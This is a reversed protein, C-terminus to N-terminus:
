RKTEAYLRVRDYIANGVTGPVCDQWVGQQTTGKLLYGKSDYRYYAKIAYQKKELNLWVRQVVRTAGDSQVDRYGEHVWTEVCRMDPNDTPTVYGTRETDFWFQASSNGACIIWNAAFVPSVSVMFFCFALFVISVFRRM